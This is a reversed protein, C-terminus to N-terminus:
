DLAMFWKSTGKTYNCSIKMNSDIIVNGKREAFLTLNQSLLKGLIGYLLATLTIM